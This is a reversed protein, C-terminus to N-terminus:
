IEEVVLIFPVEIKMAIRVCTRKCIKKKDKIEDDGVERYGHKAVRFCGEM